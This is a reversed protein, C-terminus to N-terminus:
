KAAFILECDRDIGFKSGIIRLNLLDILLYTQQLGFVLRRAKHAKLRRRHRGVHRGDTKFLLVLYSSGEKQKGHDQSHPKGGSQIHHIRENLSRVLKFRNYPKWREASGGAVF